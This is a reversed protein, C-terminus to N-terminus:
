MRRNIPETACHLSHLHANSTFQIHIKLVESFGGEV